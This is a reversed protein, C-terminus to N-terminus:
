FTVAGFGNSCFRGQASSPSGSRYTSRYEVFHQDVVTKSEFESYIEVHQNELMLVKLGHFIIRENLMELDNKSLFTRLNIFLIAESIVMDAALDVFNILNDFLSAEELVHPGFGFAKLYRSINWELEFAYDANLQLGIRSIASNLEANVQQIKSRAEEDALLEDNFISYLKGSLNKHGLPLAFLDRVVIFAKTPAIEEDKEWVSYPEIAKVGKCSLLSQCIRSFLTKNEIQLVSIYEESLSIQSELGTFCIKM